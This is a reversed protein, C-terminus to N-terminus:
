KVLWSAVDRSFFTELPVGQAGVLLSRAKPYRDLFRSLGSIKGSRGSKVEIAWVDRGRAVVYDVEHDGERWYTILYEVSFLNNCLRAGV